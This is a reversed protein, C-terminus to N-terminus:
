HHGNRKAQSDEVLRDEPCAALTQGHSHYKTENEYQFCLATGLGTRVAHEKTEKFM